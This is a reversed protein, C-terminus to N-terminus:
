FSLKATRFTKQRLDPADKCEVGGVYSTGDDSLLLVSDAEVPNVVIGEPNFGRFDVGEILRPPADPQGTWLYIGFPGGEDYHGAVILYEQRVPLYEFSRIGLGGLDLEMPSGLRASGGNIIEGPNEIPVILTRNEPIPNRFGVLLKGDPTAALGEINLAGRSEPAFRAGASLRYKALQPAASLDRLLDNYANGVCHVRIRGNNQEVQVAWLRYRSSRLEGDKNRGHSTIWYVRNNLTTAGEIDAEPKGADVMLFTSMDFGQVPQASSDFRYTRLVNDEDSAALFMGLGVPVGASADCMGIRAIPREMGAQAWCTSSALLTVVVLMTQLLRILM